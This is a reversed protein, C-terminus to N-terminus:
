AFRWPQENDAKRAVPELIEPLVPTVENRIGTPPWREAEYDVPAGGSDNGDLDHRTNLEV